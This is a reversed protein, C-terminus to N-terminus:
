KGGSGAEVKGVQKYRRREEKESRRDFISFLGVGGM